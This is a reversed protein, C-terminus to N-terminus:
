VAVNGEYRKICTNEASDNYIHSETSYLKVSM